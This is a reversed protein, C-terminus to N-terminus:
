PTVGAQERLVVVRQQMKALAGDVETSIEVDVRDISELNRAFKKFDTHRRFYKFNTGEHMWLAFRGRGYSRRLKENYIKVQILSKIGGPFSERYFNEIGTAFLELNTAYSERQAAPNPTANSRLLDILRDNVKLLRDYDDRLASLICNVESVASHVWLLKNHIYYSNIRFNPIDPDMYIGAMAPMNVFNIAFARPDNIQRVEVVLTRLNGVFYALKEQTNHFSNLTYTIDVEIRRLIELRRERADLKSKVWYGLASLLVAFASGGFAGILEQWRYLTESPLGMRFSVVRVKLSTFPAM